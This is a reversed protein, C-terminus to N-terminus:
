MASAAPAVTAESDTSTVSSRSRSSPMWPPLAPTAARQSVKAHGAGGGPVADGGAPRQDEDAAVRDPGAVRSRSLAASPSRETTHRGNSTPSRAIPAAVIDKGPRRSNSVASSSKKLTM